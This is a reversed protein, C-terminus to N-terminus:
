AARRVAAETAKAIHGAILANVEAAHTLPGMHGAGAVVKLDASPFLSPVMGAIIRTPAPAQEGRIALVPARLAAYDAALTPEKFLANFHLPAVPMWRTLADRVEPRLAKFAGEGNWYDIFTVAAGRYDGAIVDSAIAYAKERIEEFARGGLDFQKLLHFASPEYLALSAIREPRALAVHLAVGGGYSHGVLHVKRDAADILAIARAAEDALTFGHEGTWPGVSDCGYHEPTIVESCPGLAVALARWQSANSGSCHLAIVFEKSNSATATTAIIM